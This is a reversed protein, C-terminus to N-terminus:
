KAAPAQESTARSIDLTGTLHGLVHSRQHADNNLSALVPDPSSYRLPYTKNCIIELLGARYLPAIQRLQLRDHVHMNTLDMMCRGATFIKM